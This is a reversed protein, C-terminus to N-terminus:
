CIVILYSHDFPYIILTASLVNASSLNTNIGGIILDLDFTELYYSQSAYDKRCNLHYRHDFYIRLSQRISYAVLQLPRRLNAQIVFQPPLQGVAPDDEVAHGPQSPSPFVTTRLITLRVKDDSMWFM